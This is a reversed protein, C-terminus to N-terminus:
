YKRIIVLKIVRREFAGTDSTAQIFGIYYASALQGGNVGKMDWDIHGAAMTTDMRDVLEGAVNYIKVMVKGQTTGAWAIRMYGTGANTFVYPNPYCKVDGLISGAAQNFVTITKSAAVTFGDGSRVEVYVEYTGSGVLNGLSNKGDWNFTGNDGFKIATTSSTSGVTFVDDVNLDVVNGGPKPLLVQKVIEGGSNYISVRVYEDVQIVQVEKVFTTAVGFSDYITVKVFYPGPAIKQGNANNGNWQFDVHGTITTGPMDQDGIRVTLGGDQPNFVTTPLGNALMGVDTVMNMLVTSGLTQVKEGAENYVEVIANYPYTM